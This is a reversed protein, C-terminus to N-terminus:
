ATMSAQRDFEWVVDLNAITFGVLSILRQAPFREGLIPILITGANASQGIASGMPAM